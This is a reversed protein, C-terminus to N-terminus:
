NLFDKHTGEIGDLMRFLALFDQAGGGAHDGPVTKLAGAGGIDALFRAYAGAMEIMIEGALLGDEGVDGRRPHFHDGGAKAALSVGKLVENDGHRRM